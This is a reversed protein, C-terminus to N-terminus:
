VNLFATRTKESIASFWQNENEAKLALGSLESWLKKIDSSTPKDKLSYANNLLIKFDNLSIPIIKAKGGYYDINSRHLIYYHAITAESPKPAIFICYTDKNTLKKHNGYHRAVPEGEMEYQKHGSSMTVEIITEFDKYKCVIDATNGPATYLPVGDDDVKFNGVIDGDNLMTFSRWINWELFLPPDVIEKNEIDKFTNIIDDFESYTKLKTKEINILENLNKNVIEYYIDKLKETDLSTLYTESIESTKSIIKKIILERDDTFLVPLTPDFLYREYEEETDYRKISRDVNKLIYELEKQKEPILYIKFTRPNISFLGTARLYRISADAYDNHNRRKTIIFKSLSIDDSERTSIDNGSIEEEFLKKLESTFTEAVFRKYGVKRDKLTKVEERFKIIKDKVEEYKNFHTLQVVFLAIENKSLSNLDNILRMLELYPKVEFTFDKDVHYPSPLQFKLLQRLFIPEKREGYIYVKGAETLKITPKLDVLGLSKPARNIRDRAKFAVDGSPSGEFFSQKSLEIYFEEQTKSNWEKNSFNETLFKVEDILKHPSRPSTVFFITKKGTIHAM